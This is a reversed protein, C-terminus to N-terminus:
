KLMMAYNLDVPCIANMFESYKLLGDGSKNYRRYFAQVEAMKLPRKMGLEGSKVMFTHMSCYGVGEVDFISFADMINFDPLIALDMKISEMKRSHDVLDLFFEVVLGTEKVGLNQSDTPRFHM